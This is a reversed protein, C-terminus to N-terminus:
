SPDTPRRKHARNLLIQNRLPRLIEQGASHNTTQNTTEQTYGIQEQLILQENEEDCYNDM